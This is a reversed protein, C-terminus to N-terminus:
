QRVEKREKTQRKGRTAIGEVKKIKIEALNKEAPVQTIKHPNHEEWPESNFTDSEEGRTLLKFRRPGSM